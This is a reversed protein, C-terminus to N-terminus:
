CFKTQPLCSTDDNFYITLSIDIDYGIAFIKHTGNGREFNSGKTKISSKICTSMFKGELVHLPM